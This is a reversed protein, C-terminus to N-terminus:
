NLLNQMLKKELKLFIYYGLGFYITSLVLINIILDFHNKLPEGSIAVLRMLTLANTLPFILSISQFIKPLYSIPFLVGCIFYLLSFITNQIIYTDRTFIMFSSILVSISFTSLLLLILILIYLFIRDLPFRAGFLIGLIISVIFSISGRSIQEFFVGIYYYIRPCPAILFPDLTGERIETIFARSCNFLTSTCLVSFSVGITVYSVYNNTGTASLFDISLQGKFLFYYIFMPFAILSIGALVFNMVQSIPYARKNTQRNKKYVAIIYNMDRVEYNIIM